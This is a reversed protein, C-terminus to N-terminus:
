KLCGWPDGNTTKDKSNDDVVILEFSVPVAKLIKGTTELLTKINGEENYTPIVISLKM